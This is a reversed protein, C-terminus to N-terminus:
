IVPLIHPKNNVLGGGGVPFFPLEFPQRKKTGISVTYLGYKSDSLSKYIKPIPCQDPSLWENSDFYPVFPVQSHRDTRFTFNGINLFVINLFAINLFHINLFEINSFDINLYVM